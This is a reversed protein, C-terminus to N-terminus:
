AGKEHPFMYADELMKGLELVEKVREDAIITEITVDWKMVMLATNFWHWAQANHMSRMNITHGSPVHILAYLNRNCKQLALGSEYAIPEIEQLSAGYKNLHPTDKTINTVITERFRLISIKKM